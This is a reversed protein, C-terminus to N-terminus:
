KISVFGSESDMSIQSARLSLKKLENEFKQSIKKTQAQKWNSMSKQIKRLEDDKRILDSELNEIKENKVGDRIM